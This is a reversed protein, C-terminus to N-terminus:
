KDVEVKREQRIPKREGEKPKHAICCLDEWPQSEKNITCSDVIFGAAEMYGRMEKESLNGHWPLDREPGASPAIICIPAGPKMVDFVKSLLYSRNEVHEFTQGSIVADIDHLYHWATSDFIIDVGPGYRIDVGIYKSKPSDFFTKYSGNVDYAGIDLVVKNERLDNDKVFKRMTEMSTGHM